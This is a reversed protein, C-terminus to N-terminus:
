NQGFRKKLLVDVAPPVFKSVDGGLRSIEKVL